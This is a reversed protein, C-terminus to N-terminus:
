ALSATHHEFVMRTLDHLHGGGPWPLVSMGLHVQDPDVDECALLVLVDTRGGVIHVHGVNLSSVQLHTTASKKMDHLENSNM